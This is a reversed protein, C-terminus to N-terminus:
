SAVSRASSSRVRWSRPERQKRVAQGERCQTDRWELREAVRSGIGERDIQNQWRLKKLIEREQELRAVERRLRANEAELVPRNGQGPFAEEKLKASESRWRYLRDPSIGLERAVEAITKDTTCSLEVAERKFEPTYKRREEMTESRVRLTNVRIQTDV